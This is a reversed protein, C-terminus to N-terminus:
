PVLVRSPAGQFGRLRLGASSAPPAVTIALRSDAIRVAMSVWMAVATEPTVIELSTIESSSTGLSWNGNARTIKVSGGTELDLVLRQGSSASFERTMFREDDALAPGAHLILITLIVIPLARHM